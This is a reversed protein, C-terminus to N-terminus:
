RTGDPTTLVVLAPALVVDALFATMTAFAALVGFHVMGNFNGLLSLLFSGTLVVSTVLLASGTSRLTRRIAGRTDGTTAHDRDFQHMFHITDDVAIGIVMSGVLMTSMNLPIGVFGALGLTLWIPILNPIMALAGRRVSGLLLVMLPTIIAIALLYSRALSGLLLSAARGSLAVGGTVVVEVGEGFLARLNPEFEELFPGYLRGDTWNVRMSLRATEFRSDTVKELDDSGSNEFLLLEQAILDREEPIRYYDPRNENLARHTERLIDLISLTSGVVVPGEQFSMAYASAQELNRLLRPDYIGNEEGSDIVVELTQVGRLAIDTREVGVRMADDEFLWDLADDSFRVASVGIGAVVIGVATVALVSRPRSLALEGCRELIRDILPHTGLGLRAQAARTPTDRIAELPIFALAAPLLTLTFGLAILVGIPSIIGLDAVPQIEAAIFSFLGGATTLSTLVVAFGTHAVAEVIAEDRELGNALGQYVIALVHVADCTGVAMLFTILVQSITTFPLGLWGMVGFSSAMSLFVVVNPLLAASVRRFLLWLLTGIMLIAAPTYIAADAESIGRIHHGIAEGGVLHIPLDDSRHREAVTTLAAVAEDTERQTLFSAEASGDEEFDDVDVISEADGDGLSSYTDLEVAISTFTLNQDVHHNLYAPNERVRQRLVALDAEDDPWREFLDEVILEDGEGRTSRANLLSTVDVVYPVRAEIEEHLARLRELFALDFVDPTSLGVLIVDERGYHARFEDYTRRARDEDLLFSDPSFDAHLRALGSILLACVLLSGLLVGLRRRVVWGAWRRFARDVRQHREGREM